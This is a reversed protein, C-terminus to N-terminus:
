APTFIKGNHGQSEHIPHQFLIELNKSNLLENAEGALIKGDGLLFLMHDCFRAALNIDHLSMFIIRQKEKADNCITALLNIQYNLDLHSNPEDLLLIGPNQTILTAIAM